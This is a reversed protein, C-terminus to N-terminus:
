EVASCPMLRMSFRMGFRSVTYRCTWSNVLFILSRTRPVCHPDTTSSVATPRRPRRHTRTVGDNTVVDDGTTGHRVSGTGQLNPPNHV